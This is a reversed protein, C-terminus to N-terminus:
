LKQIMKIKGQKRWFASFTGTSCTACVHLSEGM